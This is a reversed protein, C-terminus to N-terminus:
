RTPKENMNPPNLEPRNPISLGTPSASIPEPSHTNRHFPPQASVSRPPMPEFAATVAGM